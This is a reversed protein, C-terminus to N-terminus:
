VTVLNAEIHPLYYNNTTFSELEQKNEMNQILLDFVANISISKSDVVVKM